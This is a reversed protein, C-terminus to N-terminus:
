PRSTRVVGVTVPESSPTTSNKCVRPPSDLGIKAAISGPASRIDVVTLKAAGNTETIRFTDRGNTQTGCGNGDAESSHILYHHDKGCGPRACAFGRPCQKANHGESLRARCLRHQRVTKLRDRLSSSRFIRCRWVGHPGSFQPFKLPVISLM